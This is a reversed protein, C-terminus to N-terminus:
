LGAELEDAKQLIWEISEGRKFANYAWEFHMADLKEVLEIPLPFKNLLARKQEEQSM